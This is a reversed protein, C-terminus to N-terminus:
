LCRRNRFIVWTWSLLTMFIINLGGSIQFWFVYVKCMEQLVRCVAAGPRRGALGIVDPITGLDVASESHLDVVAKPADWPVVLEVGFTIGVRGGVAATSDTAMVLKGSFYDVDLLGSVILVALCFGRIFDLLVIYPLAVCLTSFVLSGTVPTADLSSRGILATRIYVIRVGGHCIVVASRVSLWDSCGVPGGACDFLGIVMIPIRGASLVGVSTGRM